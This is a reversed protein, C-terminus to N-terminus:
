LRFVSIWLTHLLFKKGAWFSQSCFYTLLIQWLINYL